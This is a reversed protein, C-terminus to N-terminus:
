ARDRHARRAPRPPRRAGSGAVIAVSGRTWATSWVVDVLDVLAERPDLLDLPEGHEVVVQRLLGALERRRHLDLAARRRASRGAIRRARRSQAARAIAVAEARAADALVQPDPVLGADTLFGMTVKGAYSFISISMGMSGSCPAWVLVGALPTGAISLKRRPGPVNTLVMSGKASFYDILRGEVVSPTHGMVELIGYRSRVKTATSSRTWGASSRTRATSRTPSASPCGSCWSGSGTASTAPLPEDLPRLNFPVLAHVEDPPAAEAGLYSARSSRHRFSVLVDNVTAGLARAARKVRWLDLPESWAVRHAARQDGRIASEPDSGPLM